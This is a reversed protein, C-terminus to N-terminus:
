RQRFRQAPALTRRMSPRGTGARRPHRGNELARRPILGDLQRIPRSLARGELDARWEARGDASHDMPKGGTLRNGDRRRVLCESELLPTAAFGKPLVKRALWRLVLRLRRHSARRQKDYAAALLSWNGPELDWVM